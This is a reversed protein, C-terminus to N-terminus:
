RDEGPNGGPSGQALRERTEGVVEALLVALLGAIIVADFAGAGGLWARGPLRGMVLEVYHFIDGLIVGSLGAIFASRRSRGALYGVVGAIAAFVFVPDVLMTQEEPNLLKAAGYMAVGTIVAALSGRVKEVAEDATIILWLSVALPVMAGGVNIILEAPPPALRFNIFSGGILLAIVVLAARDTMRMRDLVREALGFYVLIAAIILLITGIPMPVPM